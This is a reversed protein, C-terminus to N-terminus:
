TLCLLLTGRGGHLRWTPSSNYSSNKRSMPVQSLLATLKVGRSRKAWPFPGRIDVPYSAPHAETSAQVCKTPLEILSAKETVLM